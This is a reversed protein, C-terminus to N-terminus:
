FLKDKRHSNNFHSLAQGIQEKQPQLNNKSTGAVKQFFDAGDKEYANNGM